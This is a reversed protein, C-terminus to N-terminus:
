ARGIRIGRYVYPGLVDLTAKRVSSGDGMAITAFKTSSEGITEEKIGARRRQEAYAEITQSFNFLGSAEICQAVQFTYVFDSPLQEREETTLGTIVFASPRPIYNPVVFSLRKLSHFAQILAAETKPLDTQSMDFLDDLDMRESAVTGLVTADVWSNEWLTLM